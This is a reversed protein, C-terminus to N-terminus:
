VYQPYYPQKNKINENRAQRAQRTRWKMKQMTTGGRDRSHSRSRSRWKMKGMKTGTSEPTTCFLSFLFLLDLDLDCLRSLPSVFICFFSFFILVPTSCFYSFHFSSWSRPWVTSVPTSCVHSFHFSSWSRPCVTSVSTSHWTEYKQEVGTEVRKIKM